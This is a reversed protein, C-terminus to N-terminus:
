LSPDPKLPRLSVFRSAPHATTMGTFGAVTPLDRSSTGPTSRTASARAIASSVMAATREADLTASTITTVASPVSRSSSLPHGRERPSSGETMSRAGAAGSEPPEGDSRAPAGAAARVDVRVRSASIGRVVSSVARTRGPNAPDGTSATGAAPSGVRARITTAASVAGAPSLAAIRVPRSAAPAARGSERQGAAGVPAEDRIGLAGARGEERRPRVDREGGREPPIGGGTMTRGPVGIEDDGLGRGQAAVDVRGGLQVGRQCQAEAGPCGGQEGSSTHVPGNEPADDEVARPIANEAGRSEIGDSSVVPLSPYACHM